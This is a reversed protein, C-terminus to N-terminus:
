GEDPNLGQVLARTLPCQDHGGVETRSTGQIQARGQTDRSTHEDTLSSSHKEGWPPDDRTVSWTTRVIDQASPDRQSGRLLRSRPWPGGADHQYSRPHLHPAEQILMHSVGLPMGGWRRPSIGENPPLPSMLLLRRPTNHSNFSASSGSAPSPLGRLLTQQFTHLHSDEWGRATESM